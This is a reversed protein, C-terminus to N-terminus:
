AFGYRKNIQFADPVTLNEQSALNQYPRNNQYGNTNSYEKTKLFYDVPETAMDSGNIYNM